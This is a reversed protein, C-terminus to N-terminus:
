TARMVLRRRASEIEALDLAAMIPPIYRAFEGRRGPTLGYWGAVPNAPSRAWAEVTGAAAPQREEAAGLPMWGGKEKLMEHLDNLCRLRFRLEAPGSKVVIAPPDSEPDRYATFPVAGDPTSLRWPKRRTGPVDGMDSSM